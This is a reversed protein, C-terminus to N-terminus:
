LCAGDPSQPQPRARPEAISKRSGSPRISLSERTQDETIVGMRGYMIVQFAAM